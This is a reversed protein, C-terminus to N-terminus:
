EEEGSSPLAELVDKTLGELDEVTTLLTLDSLAGHRQLLGLLDHVMQTTLRVFNVTEPDVGIKSSEPLMAVLDPTEDLISDMAQEVEEAINQAQKELIDQMSNTNLGSVVPQTAEGLVAGKNLDQIRTGKTPQPSTSEAASRPSPPVSPNSAGVLRNLAVRIMDQMVHVPISPVDGEEVSMGDQLSEVFAEDINGAEVLRRLMPMAWQSDNVTAGVDLQPVGGFVGASGAGTQIAGIDAPPPVFQKSAHRQLQAILMNMDVPKGIVEAIGSRAAALLVDPSTSRSLLVMRTGSKVRPENQLASCVDLPDGKAWEAELLLVDPVVGRTTALAQQLTGLRTVDFGHREFTNAMLDRRGQNEDVVILSAIATGGSKLPGLAGKLRVWLVVTREM